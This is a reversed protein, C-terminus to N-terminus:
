IRRNRRWGLLLGFALLGSGLVVLSTPEPVQALFGRIEGGMAFTSHVNLYETGAFLGAILAAEAGAIGGQAAIFAPNYSSALTLDLTSVFHGFTVGLPFGAFTPTTTAVM